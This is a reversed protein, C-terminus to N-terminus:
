MAKRRAKTKVLQSFSRLLEEQDRQPLSSFAKEIGEMGFSAPLRRMIEETQDKIPLYSETVQAFVESIEVLKEPPCSEDGGALEIMLNMCKAEPTNDLTLVGNVLLTMMRLVTYLELLTSLQSKTMM